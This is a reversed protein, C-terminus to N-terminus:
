LAQWREVPLKGTNTVIIKWSTLKQIVFDCYHNDDEQQHTELILDFHKDNSTM